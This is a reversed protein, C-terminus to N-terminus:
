KRKKGQIGPQDIGVMRAAASLAGVAAGVQRNEMGVRFAYQYQQLLTAAMQEREFSDWREVLKERARMMYREASGPALSYRECIQSVIEHHPLGKTMQEIVFNLRSEVEYLTAQKKDGGGKDEPAPAAKAM